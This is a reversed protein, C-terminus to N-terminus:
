ARTHAREVKREVPQSSCGVGGTLWPGWRPPGCPRFKPLNGRWNAAADLGDGIRSLYFVDQLALNGIEGRKARGEDIHVQQAIRDASSGDAICIDNPPTPLNSYDSEPM